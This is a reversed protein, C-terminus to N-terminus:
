GKKEIDDLRDAYASSAVLLSGILAAVSLSKTFFKM